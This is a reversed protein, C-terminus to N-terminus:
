MASRMAALDVVAPVGTFDQLIVRGPMFPIEVGSVNRADYAAMNRVDDATVVYGDENRLLSELLVRVSFPMRAVDALGAEELAALRFYQAEGSGTDFTSRAKFTDPNVRTIM